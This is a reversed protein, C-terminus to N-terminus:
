NTSRPVAPKKLRAWPPLLPSPLPRPNFPPPLLPPLKELELLRAVARTGFIPMLRAKIGLQSELMTIQANVDALAQKREQTTPAASLTKLADKLMQLVTTTM